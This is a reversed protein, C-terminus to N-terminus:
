FIAKLEPLKFPKRRSKRSQPNPISTGVAVNSPVIDNRAAWGLLLSVHSLRINVNAVSQGEALLKSKFEIIHAKTIQDVPIKGVKEHFKGATAKVMAVTKPRKAGEAKWQNLIGPELLLGSGTDPSCEVAPNRSEPARADKGYRAQMSAILAERDLEARERENIIQLRAARAIDAPDADTDIGAALADMVPGLCEAEMDAAFLEDAVQTAAREDAEWLARERDIQRPTKPPASAPVPKAATDRDREAQKLLARAAKTMDPIVAKAAERDKLGLSRKIERKGAMFPRLDAPIAMRFYYVGNPARHLYSCM